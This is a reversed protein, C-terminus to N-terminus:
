ILRLKLSQSKVVLREGTSINGNYCVASQILKLRPKKPSDIRMM